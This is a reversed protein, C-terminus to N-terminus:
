ITDASGNQKNRKAALALYQFGYCRWVLDYFLAGCMIIELALRKRAGIGIKM